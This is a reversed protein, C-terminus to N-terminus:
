RRPLVLVRELRPRTGGYGGDIPIIKITDAGHQPLEFEIEKGNEKIEHAFEGDLYVKAASDPNIQIRILRAEQNPPIVFEAGDPEICAFREIGWQPYPGEWQGIGRVSMVQVLPPLHVADQRALLEEAKFAELYLEWGDMSSFRVMNEILLNTELHRLEPPLNTLVAETPSELPELGPYVFRTSLPLERLAAHVVGNQLDLWLDSVGADRLSKGFLPLFVAGSGTRGVAMDAPMQFVTVPGVLPRSWSAYSPFLWIGALVMLFGGLALPKSSALFVGMSPAAFAVVPILLRSHWVQYRMLFSFVVFAVLFLGISLLIARRERGGIFGFAAGLLVLVPLVFHIFGTASDELDPRFSLHFPSALFTSAPDGVPVGLRDCVWVIAESVSRNWSDVPLALQLGFNRIAVSIGTAPRFNANAHQSSGGAEMATIKSFNSLYHPSITLLFVCAGALLPLFRIKGKVFVFAVGSFLVIVPLYAVATGKTLAALGGLVGGALAHSLRLERLRIVDIAVIILGLLFACLVLDNKSNSAQFFAAPLTSFFAAAAIGPLFMGVLQRTILYILCLCACFASWQILFHFRDSSSLLYLQVGVWEALPPMKEMHAYPMAEPFVTGQSIWILQRPLHYILADGNNPAAFAGMLLSGGLSTGILGYCLIQFGVSHDKDILRLKGLHKRFHTRGVEMRWFFCGGAVLVGTIWWALAGMWTLGGLASLLLTGISAWAMFSFWALVVSKALVWRAGSRLFEAGFLLLCCGCFLLPLLIALWSPTM